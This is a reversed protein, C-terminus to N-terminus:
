RDYYLTILIHKIQKKKKKIKTIYHFSYVQSERETKRERACVCVRVSMFFTEFIDEGLNEDM